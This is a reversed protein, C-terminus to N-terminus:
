ATAERIQEVIDRFDIKELEAVIVAKPVSQVPSKRRSKKYSTVLQSWDEKLMGSPGAPNLALRGALIRRLEAQTPRSSIWLCLGLQVASLALEDKEASDM